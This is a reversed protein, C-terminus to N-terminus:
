AADIMKQEWAEIDKVKVWGYTGEIYPDIDVIEGTGIFMTYEGDYEVLRLCTM